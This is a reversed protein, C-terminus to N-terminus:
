PTDLPAQAVMAGLGAESLIQDRLRAEMAGDRGIELWHYAPSGAQRADIGQRFFYMVAASNNIQRKPQSYREKQVVVELVRNGDPQEPSITVTVTRRISAMTSEWFDQHTNVDARWFEFAHQSGVPDTTILGQRADSVGVPWGYRRIVTESAEFLAAYEADNVAIQAPAAPTPDAYRAACGALM